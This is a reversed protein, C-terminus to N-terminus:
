YKQNDKDSGKKKAMGGVKKGFENKGLFNRGQKM